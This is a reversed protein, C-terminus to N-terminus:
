KISAISTRTLDTVLLPNEIKLQNILDEASIENALIAKYEAETIGVMQLFQVEGHPTDIVGLESDLAFAIAKIETETELRIPGNAPMYHFPEFYNNTKFVYKAINQMMALPWSAFEADDKYPKLRFTLEFGYKSFEAGVEEEDYYLSSFGYSVYHKHNDAHKTKYISIGDLPDEGGLQYHIPPAFHKPEQAGYIKELEADISLWGVADDENFQKKYQDLHIDLAM